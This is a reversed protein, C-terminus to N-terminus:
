LLKSIFVSPHITHVPNIIPWMRPLPPSSNSCPLSGDHEMFYPLKKVLQAAALKEQPSQAMSNIHATVKQAIIQGTLWSFISINEKKKIQKQRIQLQKTFQVVECPWAHINRRLSVKHLIVNERRYIYLNRVEQIHCLKNHYDANRFVFNSKRSLPSLLKKRFTSTSTYRVVHYLM